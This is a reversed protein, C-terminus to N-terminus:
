EPEQPLYHPDFQMARKRLIEAFEDVHSVKRHHAEQNEIYHRVVDVQSPAYSFVGYGKQWAFKRLTQHTTNIWESAGRKVCRMMEPISQNPNYAILAHVHDATGGVIIPTHGNGSFISAIYSHLTPRWYDAITAERYKVSFVIHLYINSYTNM